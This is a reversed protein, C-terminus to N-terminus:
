LTLFNKSEQCVIFIDLAYLLEQRLRFTVNDCYCFKQIVVFQFRWKLILFDIRVTEFQKM